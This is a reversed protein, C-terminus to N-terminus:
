NGSFSKANIEKPLQKLTLEAWDDQSAQRLAATVVSDPVLIYNYVALPGAASVKAPVQRYLKFDVLVDSMPYGYEDKGRHVIKFGAPALSAAPIDAECHHVVYTGGFGLFGPKNVVRGCDLVLKSDEASVPDESSMEDGANALVKNIQQPTLTRRIVAELRKIQQETQRPTIAKRQAAAMSVACALATLGAVVTKIKNM